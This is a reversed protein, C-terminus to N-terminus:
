HVTVQLCIRRQIGGALSFSSIIMTYAARVYRPYCRDASCRVKTAVHMIVRFPSGVEVPECLLLCM